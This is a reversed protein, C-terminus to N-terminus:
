SGALVIAVPIIWTAALALYLSARAKLASAFSGSIFTRDYILAMLPATAMVEKTGMGLACAAVAALKWNRILCYIVLLYFMGTLSEARQVTYTVAETNLPHVLWVAAVAGALWHASTQFQNGWIRPSSLNRRLIGFLIAGSAMHILLNTVHYVEVRLGGIAYDAAFSAWLVPRGSLTTPMMRGSDTLSRNVHPNNLIADIDDFIFPGRFSDSYAVIACLMALVLPTGRWAPRNATMTSEAM